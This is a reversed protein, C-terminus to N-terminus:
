HWPVPIGAIYFIGLKFSELDNLKFITFKKLTLLFPINKQHKSFFISDGDKPYFNILNQM